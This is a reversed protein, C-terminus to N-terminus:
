SPLAWCISLCSCSPTSPIRSGSPALYDDTIKLWLGGLASGEYGTWYLRVLESVIGILILGCLLTLVPATSATVMKIDFPLGIWISKAVAVLFVFVALIYLM